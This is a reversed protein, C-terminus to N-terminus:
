EIEKSFIYGNTEYGLRNFLLPAKEMEIGTNHYITISKAGCDKAWKESAKLLKIFQGSGRYEPSVYVGYDSALLVGSFFHEQIGILAFSTVQNDTINFACFVRNPFALTNILIKRCREEDFSEDQFRSEKHLNKGLGIIQDAYEPTLETLIM